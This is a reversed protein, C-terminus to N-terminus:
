EVELDEPHLENDLQMAYDEIDDENTVGADLFDFLKQFEEKTEFALLIFLILDESINIKELRQKAEKQFENEAIEDLTKM